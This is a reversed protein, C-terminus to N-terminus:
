PRPYAAVIDRLEREHPEPDTYEELM